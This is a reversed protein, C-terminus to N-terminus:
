GLRVYIGIIPSEHDRDIAINGTRANYNITCGWRLNNIKTSFGWVYEEMNQHVIFEIPKKLTVIEGFPTKYVIEEIVIKEPYDGSHCLSLLNGQFPIKFHGTSYVRGDKLKVNRPKPDELYAKLEPSYIPIQGYTLNEM